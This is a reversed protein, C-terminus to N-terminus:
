GSCRARPRLPAPRRRLPTPPPAAPTVGGRRGGAPRRHERRQARAPLRRLRRARARARAQGVLGGPAPARRRLGDAARRLRLLGRRPHRARRHDRPAVRAGRVARLRGTRAARRLARRRRARDRRPRAPAPDAAPGRVRVADRRRPRERPHPRDDGGRQRGRRPLRRHPRRAGAPLRDPGEALRQRPRGPRAARQRRLVDGAARDVRAPARLHGRLGQGHSSPCPARALAGDRAARQPDRADRPLPQAHLLPDRARGQGAPRRVAPDRLRRRLGDGRARRRRARRARRGPAVPHGLRVDGHDAPDPRLQHDAHDRARDARRDRDRAGAGRLRLLLRQRLVAAHDPLARRRRGEGQPLQLDSEPSEAHIHVEPFCAAGIAFEPYEDRILEILERSYRLGGDTATWETEGQPPDGRLALVNVIGADRMRDLTERLEATTANVCTFHAMAELGFDEKIGAVIDITKARQELSGGAGYTVSVFTPDM